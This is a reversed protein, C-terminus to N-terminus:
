VDLKLSSVFNYPSWPGNFDFTYNNDFLKAAAIIGEEFEKRDSRDVLCALRMVEREIRPKNQKIEACHRSLMRMVAKTHAEREQILLREFLRGLEIKQDRAPGHQRALMNDRVAALEPCQNVFYEFINPVDWMVKLGMEVKGNVRKLQQIFLHQNKKLIDGVSQASSAITGFAAPLVTREAMLKTVVDHHATLKRREPRIKKSVTDSVVAALSGQTMTYVTAGDIGIKGYSRDETDDTIAYLYRVSSKFQRPTATGKLDGDADAQRNGTEM